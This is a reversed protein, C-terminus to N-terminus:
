YWDKLIQRNEESVGFSILYNILIQTRESDATPNISALLNVIKTFLRNAPQTRQPIPLASSLVQRGRGLVKELLFNAKEEFVKDAIMNLFQATKFQALQVMSYINYWVVTRTFVDDIHNINQVFYALSVADIINEM